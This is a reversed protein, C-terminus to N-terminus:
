FFEINWFISCPGPACWDTIAMKYYKEPYKPDMVFAIPGDSQPFEKDPHCTNDWYANYDMTQIYVVTFWIMSPFFANNTDFIGTAITCWTPLHNKQIENEFSINSNKTFFWIYDGWINNWLHANYVINKYRKFIPTDTKESFFPEYNAPTTIKIWLDKYTYTYIYWRSYADIDYIHNIDYWTWIHISIEPNPYIWTDPTLINEFIQSPKIESKSISLFNNKCGALFFLCLLSLLILKKMTSLFIYIFFIYHKSQNKCIFLRPFVVGLIIIKAM